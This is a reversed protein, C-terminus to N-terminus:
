LTHDLVIRWNGKIKKFLLTFTGSKVDNPKQVEWRGSVFAYNNTATEFKLNTFNLVGMKERTNYSKKYMLTVNDWGMLVSSGGYFRLSDSRWYGDMFGDISGNNWAFLQSEIVKLVEKETTNEPKSCATFFSLAILICCYISKMNYVIQRCNLSFVFRKDKPYASQM